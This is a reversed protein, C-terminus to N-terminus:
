WTARWFNVVGWALVYTRLRGLLGLVHKNEIVIFSFVTESTLFMLVLAIIASWAISLWVDHKEISFNWLYFDLVLWSGRWFWVVFFPIFIFSMVLDAFIVFYSLEPVKEGAPLTVSYYSSVLTVAAPRSYFALSFATNSYIQMCADYAAHLARL